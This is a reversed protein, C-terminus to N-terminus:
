SLIFEMILFDRVINEGVVAGVRAMLHLRMRSLALRDDFDHAELARLYTNMVDMIRPQLHEVHSRADHPVELQGVLRLHTHHSGAPLNVVIAPLAVFDFDTETSVHHEATAHDESASETAHKDAGLIMGSSVAFYGGGAGIAALLVGAIVPVKKSKRPADEKAQADESM